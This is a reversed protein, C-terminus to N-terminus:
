MGDKSKLKYSSAGDSRLTREVIIAEGYEHPKFADPGRNRLRVMVEASRCFLWLM